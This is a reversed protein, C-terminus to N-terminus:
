RKARRQKSKARKKPVVRGKPRMPSKRRPKQAKIARNRAVARTVLLTLQKRCDELQSELDAIRADRSRLEARDAALEKMLVNVHERADALARERVRAALDWEKERLAISHARLETDRRLQELHARAANDDFGATQQALLLAKEWQARAAEALEPPLSTLAVPDGRNLAAQNKWFRRMADAITSTSGRKLAKLVGAVTPHIGDAMLRRAANEIEAFSVNAARSRTAGYDGRDENM